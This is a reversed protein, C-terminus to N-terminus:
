LKGGAAACGLRRAVEEFGGEDVGVWMDVWERSAEVREGKWAEEEKREIYITQFGCGRAAELDGLHAAVLACEGPELGLKRAAGLYVDRHPKYCGFDEASLIEKYPLGGHKALDELLTM